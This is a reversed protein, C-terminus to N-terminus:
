RGEHNLGETQPKNVLFDLPSMFQFHLGKQEITGSSVSERSPMTVTVCNLFSWLPGKKKFAARVNVNKFM